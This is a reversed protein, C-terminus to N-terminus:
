SIKALVQSLAQKNIEVENKAEFEEIEIEDEKEMM